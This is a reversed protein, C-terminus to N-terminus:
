SAFDAPQYIDPHSKKLSELASCSDHIRAITPFQRFDVGHRTANYCQPILCLDALSLQDGHSFLGAEATCLKEYTELGQHIWYQMWRKQEAPDSSHRQVVPPNQIPHTGSNIVEALAWIRAHDLPTGPFLTPTAHIEELYRIIALSETLYKGDPTELVPVLGAPNRKLHEPSESEGNLLSVAIPEFPIKKYEMAFRVRWSSSSRWYHYLKFGSGM